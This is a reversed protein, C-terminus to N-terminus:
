NGQSQKHRRRDSKQTRAVRKIRDIKDFALDVAKTVASLDSIPKFICGEAGLSTARLVNQISVMGTCMIVQIGADRQKIEKLLTLGDREPMDIDLLVVRAGVELIKNIAITPNSVSVVKIGHLELKKAVIALITPDDDVHLVLKPPTM